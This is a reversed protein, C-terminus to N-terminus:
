WALQLLKMVQLVQQETESLDEFELGVRLFGDSRRETFVARGKIGVHISDGAEPHVEVILVRGILSEAQRPPFPFLVLGAGLISLDLLECQYWDTDPDDDVVYRGIWGLTGVRPARRRKTELDGSTSHTAPNEPEGDMNMQDDM